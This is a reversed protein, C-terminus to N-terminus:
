REACVCQKSDLLVKKCNYYEILLPHIIRNKDILHKIKKGAITCAIQHISLDNIASALEQRGAFARSPELYDAVFLIDGLIGFEPHGTSHYAIAFLLGEDSIDFEKEALLASAPGHFLSPIESFMESDRINVIYKSNGIDTLLKPSCKACDHVLGLLAAADPNVDNLLALEASLNAVGISHTLREEDLFSKLLEFVTEGNRVKKTFVGELILSIHNSQLDQM